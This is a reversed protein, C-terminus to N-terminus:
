LSRLAERVISREDWPIQGQETMMTTVGAMGCIVVMDGPKAERLIFNIAERRDVIEEAHAQSADIGSRIEEIIKEHPEGYTEDSTVVVIDAYEGCAKGILSRKERMRNGCSGTLVLFRKGDPTLARLTQLIKAYSAATVTFDVYVSFPQGEEIRELRGPVGPFSELARLAVELPIGVATLCGIACQANELNFTGPIALKLEAIGGLDTHLKASVGERGERTETCWLDGEPSNYIVTAKSPIKKFPHFSPDLGNLVKAGKGNLLSFLRGKDQVYREMTGHYDLHEPSINTIAAVDPFIHNVRGQVLGHSSVEIVAYECEAAVMRRLQRQLVFPNVSTKQTVNLEIQDGIQFSTTSIMGVKKGSSGLIHRIMAVTTTKGDTGTVAIVKLHRAPFGFRLVALIAKGFHWGLRVPSRKPILANLRKLPRLFSRM